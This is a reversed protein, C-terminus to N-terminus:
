TRTQNAHANSPTSQRGLLYQCYLKRSSRGGHGSLMFSKGFVRFALAYGLHRGLTENCKHKSWRIMKQSRIRSFHTQQVPLGTTHGESLMELFIATPFVPNQTVLINSHATGIIDMSRNLLAAVRTWLWSMSKTSYVSAARSDQSGSSRGHRVKSSHAKCSSYETEM